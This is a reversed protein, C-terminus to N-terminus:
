VALRQKQLKGYASKADGTSRSDERLVEARVTMTMFDENGIVDRSETPSFKVRWYHANFKGKEGVANAGEMLLYWEEGSNTLLEIEDFAASTYDVEAVVETVQVVTITFGDGAVFPTAGANITFSLGGTNFLTGTTGSGVSGAPGTVNFATASTFTVTYAGVAASSVTVAGMTGNGTNGGAKPASSASKTGLQAAIYDALDSNEIVEIGAGTIRWDIDEDYETSDIEVKTIELPMLALATTQGVGLVVQEAVVATSPVEAIDAYLANALNRSNIERLALTLFFRDVRAFTDYTGGQPTTTDPLRIETQEIQEQATSVLGIFDTPARGGAKGLKFRGGILATEKIHPM